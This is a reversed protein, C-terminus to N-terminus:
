PGVEEVLEELQVCVIGAQLPQSLLAVDTMMLRTPQVQQHFVLVADHVDRATGIRGVQKGPLAEWGLNGSPGPGAGCM